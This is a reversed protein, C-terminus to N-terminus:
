KVWKIKMTATNAISYPPTILPYQLDNNAPMTVRAAIIQNYQPESGNFSTITQLGNVYRAVGANRDAYASTTGSYFYLNRNPIKLSTRYTLPGSSTADVSGNELFMRGANGNGEIINIQNSSGLYGMRILISTGFGVGVIDTENLDFWNFGASVNGVGGLSLLVDGNLRFGTSAGASPILVFTTGKVTKVFGQGYFDASTVLNSSGVTCTTGSINVVDARIQAPSALTTHVIIKTPSIVYINNSWNTYTTSATTPSNLQLAVGVSITSGSVTIVRVMNGNEQAPGSYYSIAFKNNELRKFGTIRTGLATGLTAILTSNVSPQGIPSEIHAFIRLSEADAEGNTYNVYVSLVDNSYDNMYESMCGLDEKYRLIPTGTGVTVTAGTKIAVSAMIAHSDRLYYLLLFSGGTIATNAVGLINKATDKTGTTISATGMTATTSTPDSANVVTVVNSRNPAIINMGGIGINTVNLGVNIFKAGYPYGADASGVIEIAIENGMALVDGTGYAFKSWTSHGAVQYLIACSNAGTNIVGVTVAARVSSVTNAAGMTIVNGSVTLVRATCYDTNASDKAVVVVARNNALRAISAGKSYNDQTFTLFSYSQYLRIDNGIVEMVAFSHVGDYSIYRAGGIPCLLKGNAPSPTTADLKDGIATVLFAYNNVEDSFAVIAKDNGVVNAHKGSIPSEYEFIKRKLNGVLLQLPSVNTISTGSNTIVQGYLGHMYEKTHNNYRHIASYIVLVKNSNLQITDYIDYFGNSMTNTTIGYSAPTTGINGIDSDIYVESSGENDAIWKNSSGVYFINTTKNPSLSICVPDGKSNFIDFPYDGNNAFQFYTDGSGVDPLIIRYGGYSASVMLKRKDNNSITYDSTLNIVGVGQQNNKEVPYGFLGENM